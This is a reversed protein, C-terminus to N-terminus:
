GKTKRMLTISLNGHTRRYILFLSLGVAAEVASVALLFLTAIHGTSVTNELAFSVLSVACGLLMIELAILLALFHGRNILFGSTGILFLAAGCLIGMDAYTMM